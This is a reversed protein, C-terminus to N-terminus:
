RFRIASYVGIVIQQLGIIFMPINHNYISLCIILIALLITIVISTDMKSSMKIKPTIRYELRRGILGYIANITIYPSILSMIASTRGSLFLAKRNSYLEEFRLFLYISVSELAMFLIYIFILPMFGKIGIGKEIISSVLSLYIGFTYPMTFFPQLLYFFAELRTWFDLRSRRFEKISKRILVDITGYSWRSQQIRLAYLDQPVSVLIYEKLSIRPMVGYGLLKVGLYMDDQVIDPPLMGLSVFIDRRYVTGSGLPYIFLKSLSRLKYLIWSGYNTMFSVAEELYTGYRIYTRWPFVCVNECRMASEIVEVDVRADIDLVMVNEEYSFRFGDNIAGNRRYLGNIRLIVITDEVMDAKSILNKVYNLDDDLVYVISFHRNSLNYKINKFMDMSGLVIEMPENKSPIVLSLSHIYSGFVHKEGLGKVMKLNPIARVVITIHYLSTIALSAIILIWSVESLM